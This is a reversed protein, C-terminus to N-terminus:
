PSDTIYKNMLLQYIKMVSAFNGMMLDIDDFEFDFAMELQVIMEVMLISDIEFTGQLDKEYDAECMKNGTLEEIIGAIKSLVEKDM